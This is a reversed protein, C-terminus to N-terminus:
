PVPGKGARGKLGDITGRLLLKLREGKLDRFLLILSVDVIARALISAWSVATGRTGRAILIQNRLHYYTYWSPKTALYIERGLLRVPAYEYNDSVEVDTCLLQLWGQRKLEWGIALDEYGMWLQPWASVGSRIADLRYLAGNSSGWAVEVCPDGESGNGGRDLMGYTSFTRRPSDRREGASSFVLQPYTAGVRGNARGHEVLRRIKGLDLEGDHNLALCWQLGLDAATRLRLDLNGASGLNRDANIYHVPWGNSEVLRAIAGTGLSDVVIVAGFGPPGEAFATKLMQSVAEDARFASIALAVEALPEDNM